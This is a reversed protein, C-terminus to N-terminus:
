SDHLGNDLRKNKSENLKREKTSFFERANARTVNIIRGTRPHGHGVIGM